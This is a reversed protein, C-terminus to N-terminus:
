PAVPISLGRQVAPRELCRDLWGPVHAVTDYETIERADYFGILNSGIWKAACASSSRARPLLTSIIKGSLLERLANPTLTIPGGM